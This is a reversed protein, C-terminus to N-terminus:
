LADVRRARSELALDLDAPAEAFIRPPLAIGLFRRNGREMEGEGAEFRRVNDGDRRKVVPGALAQHLPEAHNTALVQVEDILAERRVAFDVRLDDISDLRRVPGRCSDDRQASNGFVTLGRCM